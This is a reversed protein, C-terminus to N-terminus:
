LDESKINWNELEYDKCKIVNIPKKGALKSIEKDPIDGIAFINNGNKVLWGLFNPMPNDADPEYIEKVRKVTTKKM